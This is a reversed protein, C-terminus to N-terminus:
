GLMRVTKKGEGFRRLGRGRLTPLETTEVLAICYDTNDLCMVMSVFLGNEQGAMIWRLEVRKDLQVLM